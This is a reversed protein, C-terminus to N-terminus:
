IEAIIGDIGITGIVDDVHQGIVDGAHFEGFTASINDLLIVKASNTLRCWWSGVRCVLEVKHQVEPITGCNKCKWRWEENSDNEEVEDTRCKPCEIWQLSTKENIKTVVGTIKVLDGVQSTKTKPSLFSLDPKTTIVVDTFSSYGDVSLNGYQDIKLGHIVTMFSVENSDDMFKCTPFPKKVNVKQYYKKSEKPFIVYITSHKPEQHFVQVRINIRQDHNELPPLEDLVLIDVLNNELISFSSGAFCKFVYCFRQDTHRISRILNFLDYSQSRTYRHQIHFPSNLLLKSGIISEWDNGFLISWRQDSFLDSSCKLVLFEGNADECILLPNCSSGNLLQDDLKSHFVIRHVTIEISFKANRSLTFSTKPSGSAGGFREVVNTVLLKEHGPSETKNHSANPSQNLKIPSKSSSEKLSCLDFTEFTSHCKGEPNEQCPCKLSLLSLKKSEEDKQDCLIESSTSTISIKLVGLLVQKGQIVKSIRPHIFNITDGPVPIEKIFDTNVLISFDGGVALFMDGDPHVELIKMSVESSLNENNVQYRELHEKSQKQSLVKNLYQVLGNKIHRKKKGSNFISDPVNDDMESVSSCRSVDESDEEEEELNALFSSATLIPKTDHIPQPPLGNSSHCSSVAQSSSPSAFKACPSSSDLSINEEGDESEVDSQYKFKFEHNLSRRVIKASQTNPSQTLPSQDRKRNSSFVPSSSQCMRKRFVPSGDEGDDSINKNSDDETDSCSEIIQSPAPPILFESSFDM